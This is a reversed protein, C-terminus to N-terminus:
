SIAEENLSISEIMDYNELSIIVSDKFKFDLVISLQEDAKGVEFHFNLMRDNVKLVFNNLFHRLKDITELKSVLSEKEDKLPGFYIMQISLLRNQTLMTSRNDKSLALDILMSPRQPNEPIDGIYFNMEPICDKVSNKIAKMVEYVNVLSIM